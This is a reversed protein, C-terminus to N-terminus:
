PLWACYISVTAAGETGGIDEVVFIVDQGLTEVIISFPVAKRIEYPGANTPTGGVAWGATGLRPATFVNATTDAGGAGIWGIGEDDDAIYYDAIGNNSKSTLIVGGDSTDALTTSTATMNTGADDLAPTVNPVDFVKLDGRSIYLGSPHRFWPRIQLNLTADTRYAAYIYAAILNVGGPNALFSTNDNDPGGTLPGDPATTFATINERHSIFARPLM